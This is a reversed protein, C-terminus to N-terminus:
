NSTIRVAPIGLGFRGGLYLVGLVASGIGYTLDMAKQTKRRENLGSKIGSYAALGTVGVVALAEITNAISWKNQPQVVITPPAAPTAQGMNREFVNPAPRYNIM